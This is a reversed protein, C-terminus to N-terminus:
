MPYMPSIHSFVDVLSQIDVENPDPVANPHKINFIGLTTCITDMRTYLDYGNEYWTEFREADCTFALEDEKELSHNDNMHPEEGAVSNAKTVEVENQAAGPVTVVIADPNFPHMFSHCVEM